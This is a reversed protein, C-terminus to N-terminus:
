PAEVEEDSLSDMAPGLVPGLEGGSIVAVAPAVPLFLGSLVSQRISLRGAPFVALLTFAIVVLLYGRTLGLGLGFWRDAPSLREHGWRRTLPEVLVAGAAVCAVLILLAGVADAAVPSLGSWRLIRGPVGCFRFAPFLGILLAALSIGERLWGKLAAAAASAILVVIALVDLISM